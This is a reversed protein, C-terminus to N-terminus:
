VAKRAPSTIGRTNDRQEIKKSGVLYVNPQKAKWQACRIAADVNIAYALMYVM